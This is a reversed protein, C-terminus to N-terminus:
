NCNLYLPPGPKSAPYQLVHETKRVRSIIGDNCTVFQSTNGASVYFEGKKM